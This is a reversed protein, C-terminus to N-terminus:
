QTCPVQEAIVYSFAMEVKTNPHVHGVGGTANDMDQWQFFRKV